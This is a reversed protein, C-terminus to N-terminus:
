GKTEVTDAINPRCIDFAKILETTKLCFPITPRGPTTSTPAPKLKIDSDVKPLSPLTTPTGVPMPTVGQALVSPAFILGFTLSCAVIKQGVAHTKALIRKM